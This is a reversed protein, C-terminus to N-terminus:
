QYKQIYLSSFIWVFDALSTKKRVEYLLFTCYFCVISVYLLFMCYFRVISIYSLFMHYFRVIAYFNGPSPSFVKQFFLFMHYKVRLCWYFRVISVYSLFMCYFRVISVYLLFTCYFCVISVYSLFMCYFHVISFAIIHWEYSWWNILADHPPFNKIDVNSLPSYHFDKRKKVTGNEEWNSFNM